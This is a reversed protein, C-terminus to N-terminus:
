LLAELYPLLVKEVRCIRCFKMLDDVKLRKRIRYFKLAELAVDFGIKNRFKFCDALTKEVSYIQLELGDVKHTEIGETFSRGSFSFVRIPPYPLRPRENGRPLAIHVAHPIQLTIDHFVLASILCIVGRPVKAAVTVLDPNTLPPLDTLRYLGRSVQEIVGKDRMAYLTRPHIGARMAASTRLM